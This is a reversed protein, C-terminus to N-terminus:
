EVMRVRTQAITAVGIDTCAQPDNQVYSNGTMTVKRAVIQVCSNTLDNGGAYMVERTPFYLAGTLEMDVGGTILNTELQGGNGFSPAAPDQIFLLGPYKGHDVHGADNPFHGDPGPATLEVDAGGNITINGIHGPDTATLVFTVTDGRLVSGGNVTLDGRNIVYIGPDFTVVAGANIKIGACYDGPTLTITGSVMLPNNSNCGGDAVPLQLGEYPDALRQSLPQPPTNTDLTANSQVYIDGYAQAPDAAMVATGYIGISRDDSSNSAVGCGINADASGSVEVADAMSNDLALICHDGSAVVAGVSRAQVTVDQKNTAVSALYVPRDVEVLVEICNTVTGGPGCNALQSVLVRGNTGDILGNRAASEIAAQRAAALDGGPRALTMAGDLSATDAITQNQRKTLYWISADFGLGAMGLVVPISLATFM